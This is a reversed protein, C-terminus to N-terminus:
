GDFPTMLSHNEFRAIEKIFSLTVQGVPGNRQKSIIVDVEGEREGPNNREPRHLMMVTDSDQELSGSERLDAM